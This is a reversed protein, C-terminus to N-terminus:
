PRSRQEADLLLLWELDFERELDWLRLLDREVVRVKDWIRLCILCIFLGVKLEV